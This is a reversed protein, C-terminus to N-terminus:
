LRLFRCVFSLPLCRMHCFGCCVGRCLIKPAFFAPLLSPFCLIFYQWYRCQLHTTRRSLSETTSGIYQKNYDVDVINYIKGNHYQNMDKHIRFWRRADLREYFMEYVNHKMLNIFLFSYPEDTAINYVELLLKKAESLSKTNAISPKEILVASLEEVMTEIERYNRFRFLIVAQQQCSYNSKVNEVETHCHNYLM